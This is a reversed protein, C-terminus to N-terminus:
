TPTPPAVAADGDVCLHPTAPAGLPADGEPTSPPGHVFAVGQCPLDHGQLRRLVERRGSIRAGGM